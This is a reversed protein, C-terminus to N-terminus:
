LTGSIAETDAFPFAILDTPLKRIEQQLTFTQSATLLIPSVPCNSSVLPLWCRLSLFLACTQGGMQYDPIIDAFQFRVNRIHKLVPNGEQRRSVLIANPNVQVM